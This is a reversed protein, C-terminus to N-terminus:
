LYEAARRIQLERRPTQIDRLFVTERTQYNSPCEHQKHKGCFGVLTDYMNCINALFVLFLTVLLKQTSNDEHLSIACILHFM